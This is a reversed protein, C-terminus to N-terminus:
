VRALQKLAERILSDLDQAGSVRSIADKAEQFSYGLAMLAECAEAVINGSVPEGESGRGFGIKDRLELLIRGATKKGIGPIRSFTKEESSIVARYFEEPALSDIVGLATKPGVGKVQILLDFVAREEKNEFGYLNWGDEKIILRTFLHVKPSDSLRRATRPPVHVELALGGVLVTLSDKSRASVPGEVEAIM